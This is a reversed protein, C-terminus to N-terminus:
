AKVEAFDVARDPHRRTAHLVLMLLQQSTPPDHLAWVARCDACQYRKV